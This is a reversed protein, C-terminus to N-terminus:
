NATVTLSLTHDVSAAPTGGDQARVVVDFTGSTGAPPLGLIYAEGQFWIAIVFPPMDVPQFLVGESEVDGLIVRQFFPVGSPVTLESPATITPPDNVGLVELVVASVDSNSSGDFVTYSFGDTFLEGGRTSELAGNPEYYFWGANMFQVRAGSPLDIWTLAPHAEGNIMQLSLEEGEPDSDAGFGNDFFVNGLVPTDENTEFRDVRAIPDNAGPTSVGGVQYNQQVETATLARDYFALLDFTGLWPRQGTVENALVLRHSSHWNDLTGLRVSSEVLSGDVWHRVNGQADRTFVVHRPGTGLSGLPGNTPPLGNTNTETTRLRLNAFDGAIGSDGQSLTVNRQSGSLSVGAIRAPGSQQTTASTVWAEITFENSARCADTIKTAPGSSIIRNPSPLILSGSGWSVEGPADIVLDLPIGYGSSDAVTSGGGDSFDYLALLGDVTRGAPGTSVYLAQIELDSSPVTLVLENSPTGDSWSTFVYANGNQVVVSPAIISHEFAVLTDHTFPATRVLQDLTLDIPAPLNTTVTVDVKNPSLVVSSSGTLGAADTATLTVEFGTMGSFDHGTTPIVTAICSSANGDCASGVVNTLVPHTHDNHLFRVTWRMEDTTISEDPDVAYGQLEVAEGANFVPSRNLQITPVPAAGVMITIPDSMVTFTDDSVVLRAEFTGFDSYTHSVSLGNSSAGDGFQWYADLSAGEPDYASGTFSVTAPANGFTTQNAQAQTIVPPDNSGNFEIRRVSGNEWDTYYLEGTSAALMATPRGLTGEAAFSGASQGTSIQLHGSSSVDITRMWGKVHDFVFLVDRYSSPFRGNRVVPGVLLASTDPHQVSYLPASYNNPPNGSCNPGECGPWGYNKGPQSIRLEHIDEWSADAGHDVNGGVDSIFMRTSEPDRTIRFPNRLGLAFLEDLNGGPGDIFPNDQPILHSNSAGLQWPGGSSVGAPDVRILKGATKSLDQAEDPHDWKDGIGLFLTGDEAFELAGGQHYRDAFTGFAEPDEWIITESSAHAHSGSDTFRSIRGRNTGDHHYYIYFYGNAGFNPDLALGLAGRENVTNVNTLQLHNSPNGGAAWPEIRVLLGNRKLVLLRGDPREELDTPEELGGTVTSLSFGSPLSQATLFTSALLAFVLTPLVRFRHVTVKRLQSRPRM